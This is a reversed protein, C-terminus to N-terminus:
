YMYRKGDLTIHKGVARIITKDTVVEIEKLWDSVFCLEKSVNPIAQFGLVGDKTSKVQRQM